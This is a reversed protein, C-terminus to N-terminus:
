KELQGNCEDSVMQGRLNNGPKSLPERQLYIMNGRTSAIIAAREPRIEAAEADCEDGQVTLVKLDSESLPM